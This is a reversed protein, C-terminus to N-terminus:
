QSKNMLGICERWYLMAANSAALWADQDLKDLSFFAQAASLGAPRKLRGAAELMRCTLELQDIEAVYKATVKKALASVIPKEKQGVEERAYDILLDCLRDQVTM